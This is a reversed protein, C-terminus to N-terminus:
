SLRPTGAGMPSFPEFHGVTFRSSGNLNPYLEDYDVSVMDPYYWRYGHFLYVNYNWSFDTGGLISEVDINQTPMWKKVFMAPGLSNDSVYIALTDYANICYEMRIPNCNPVEALQFWCIDEMGVYAHNLIKYNAIWVGDGNYNACVDDYSSISPVWYAPDDLILFPIGNEITTGQILCAHEYIVPQTFRILILIPHSNSITTCVDNFTLQYPPTNDITFCKFILWELVHEHQIGCTVCDGEYPCCTTPNLCNCYSGSIYGLACADNVLECQESNSLYYTLLMNTCAAWCWGAGIQHEFIISLNNEQAHLMSSMFFLTITIIVLILKM